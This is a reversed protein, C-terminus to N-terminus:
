FVAFLVSLTDKPVGLLVVLVVPHPLIIFTVSETLHSPDCVLTFIYIFSVELVILFMTM